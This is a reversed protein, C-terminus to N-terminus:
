SGPPGFVWDAGVAHLGWPSGACGNRIANLREEHARIQEDIVAERSGREYALKPAKDERKQDGEAGM